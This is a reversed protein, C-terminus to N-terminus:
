NNRQAVRGLGYIFLDGSIIGLYVSIFTLSIPLGYEVNAFSAAIIAADEQIFTLMFLIICHKIWPYLFM